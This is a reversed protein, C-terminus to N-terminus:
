EEKSRPHRNIRSFTLLRFEIIMAMSVASQLIRQGISVALVYSIMNVSGYLIARKRYRKRQHDKLKRNVSVVPALYLISLMGLLVFVLELLLPFGGNLWFVEGIVLIFETFVPLDM